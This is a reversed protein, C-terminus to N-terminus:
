LLSQLRYFEAPTITGSPGYTYVRGGIEVEMPIMEVPPLGSLMEPSLDATADTFIQYDAM